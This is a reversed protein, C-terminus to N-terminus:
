PKASPNPRIVRIFQSTLSGAVTIAAHIRQALGLLDDKDRTCSVIGAHAQSAHLRKYHRDNHTLM